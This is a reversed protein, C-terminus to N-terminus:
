NYGELYSGYISVDWITFKDSDANLLDSALTELNASWKGERAGWGLARSLDNGTGYPLPVFTM